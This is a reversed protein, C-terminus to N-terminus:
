MFRATPKRMHITEYQKMDIHKFASSFAHNEENISAKRNCITPAHRTTENANYLIKKNKYFM